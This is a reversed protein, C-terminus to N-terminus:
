ADDSAPFPQACWRRFATRAGTGATRDIAIRRREKPAGIRVERRLLRRGRELTLEVSRGAGLDRLLSELGDPRALRGDVALLVDGGSVGAHWAPGDRLVSRIAVRTPDSALLVGLEPPGPPEPELHLGVASLQPELDPVSPLTTLAACREALADGGASALAELVDQETYGETPRGSATGFRRWLTLLVGDLGDGEPDARRLRLDLELAVLAGHTYYDTGANPSNEDRRYHKTWATRSADHLSQLAAGPLQEIARQMGTLDQLLGAVPRLGARTPLIRDYYSTWGEAVWLSPTITPRELDPDVLAAPAMRRVNWLHLHEHSLLGAIRQRREPDTVAEARFAVVCGDRHELGGGDGDVAIVTYRPSPLEGGFLEVAVAALQALEDALLEVDVRPDSGSWVFRHEVGRVDRSARRQAGIAFASDVLHQHDQAVYPGSGEGPLLSTVADDARLGTLLIRHPLGLAGALFPFTAAGLLLVHDDDAWNTRVSLDFAYWELRVTVSRQDPTAAPVRWASVGDVELPILGGDPAVAGIRQLHHVYDRVVYSGPTWTPMVLRGGTALLAAPLHLEVTVLHQDRASLDVTVTIGADAPLDGADVPPPAAHPDSL